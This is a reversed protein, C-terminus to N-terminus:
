GFNDFIKDVFNIFMIHLISIKFIILEGAYNM